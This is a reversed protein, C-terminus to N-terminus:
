AAGFDALPRGASHPWLRDKVRVWRVDSGFEEVRVRGKTLREIDPRYRIPVLGRKRWM